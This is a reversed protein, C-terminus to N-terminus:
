RKQLQSIEADSAMYLDYQNVYSYLLAGINKYHCWMFLRAQVMSEGAAMPQPDVIRFLFRFFIAAFRSAMQVPVKSETGIYARCHRDFFSKELDNVAYVSATGTSCANAFVLPCSPFEATGFETETLVDNPDSSDLGFRLVPLNAANLGYHCFLYLVGVPTQSPNTLERVIESKPTPGAGNPVVWQKGLSTWIQKQWKAEATAPEKSSDGFFLLSSCWSEEPRGLSMSPSYPDYATYGIRYRLGWFRTADVPAGPDADGCYLLEWPVHPMWGAGSDPRWVIDIRQGPPLADLWARVPKGTPFLSNYLKRGYFALNHLEPLTATQNWSNCHSRDAYDVLSSWNYQPRFRNLRDLMEAPDIDNLYSTAKARFNETAKRLAELPNTLAAKDTVMFVKEGPPFITAGANGFAMATGPAVVVLTIVGPPTTWEHMTGVNVQALTALSVDKAIASAAPTSAGQAKDGVLFRIRIERYLKERAYILVTLAADAALPRVRVRVTRSDASPPILLDFAATHDGPDHEGGRKVTVSDDIAELELKAPILAWHTLLGAEPIDSDPIIAGTGRIMSAAVPDGVRFNGMYTQGLDLPRQPAKERESIWFSIRRDPPPPSTLDRPEPPMTQRPKRPGGEASSRDAPPGSRGRRVKPYIFSARAYDSDTIDTGGIIAQGNKAIEGPIQYSMISSTGAGPTGMLSSEELPTLVQDRVEEASWGQTRKFFEIAKKPNIRAVLARHMREHPFGLTHGTEHRVVRRFDSEPTNISFGELNMTQRDAPVHLIDTGVYSWYGGEDRAIRVQPDTKTAVFKVSATRSWANMHLLIRKRLDAPPADMFGVTLTVDPSWYKTTVMAIRRPTPAFGPTLRILPELSPQNFPNIEM